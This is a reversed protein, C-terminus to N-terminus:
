SSTARRCLASTSPVAVRSPLIARIPLHPMDRTTLAWAIMRAYGASAENVNFDGTFYTPLEGFRSYIKTELLNVFHSDLQCDMVLVDYGKLEM